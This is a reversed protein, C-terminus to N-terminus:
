GLRDKITSRKAYEPYSCYVGELLRELRVKQLNEVKERIANVENNSADLMSRWRVRGKITLAYRYSKLTPDVLTKNILKKSVCTDVDRQLCKSFPGYWFPEWDDYFSLESVADAIKSLEKKYQQSLLFGYKQLRTTGHIEADSIVLLVRDDPSFQAVTPIRVTETLHTRINDTVRWVGRSYVSLVNRVSLDAKIVAIAKHGGCHM